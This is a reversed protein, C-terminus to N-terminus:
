LIAQITHLEFKCKTLHDDDQEIRSLGGAGLNIPGEYYEIKAAYEWNTLLHQYLIHQSNHQASDCALNRNDTKIIIEGDYIINHHYKLSEVIALLEQETTPYKVQAEHFTKSFCSIVQGDQTVISEMTYDSADTYIVFPKNFNMNALMISEAVKVKIKKFALQQEEDWKFKM